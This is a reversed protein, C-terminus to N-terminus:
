NNLQILGSKLYYSIRQKSISRQKAITSMKLGANLDNQVDKILKLFVKKNKFANSDKLSKLTIALSKSNKVLQDLKNGFSASYRGMDNFDDSYFELYDEITKINEVLIKLKEKM